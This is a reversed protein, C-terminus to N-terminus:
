FIFLVGNAFTKLENAKYGYNNSTIRKTKSKYRLIDIDYMEIGGIIKCPIKGAQIANKKYRDVQNISSLGLANAAGQKSYVYHM